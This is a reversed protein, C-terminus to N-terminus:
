EHNELIRIDGNLNEVKIQPGGSSVRAGAFRDVFHRLRRTADEGLVIHHFADGIEHLHNLDFRHEGIAAAQHGHM